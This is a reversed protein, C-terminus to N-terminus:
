NNNSTFRSILSDHIFFFPTPFSSCGMDCIVSSQFFSMFFSDDNGLKCQTDCFLFFFFFLVTTIQSISLIFLTMVDFFTGVFFDM